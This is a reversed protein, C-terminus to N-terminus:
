WNGGCWPEFEEGYKEEHKEAYVALFTCPDDFGDEPVRDNIRERLEDDMLVAAAEPDIWRGAANRAPTM